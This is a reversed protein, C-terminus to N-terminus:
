PGNGSERASAPAFNRGRIYLPGFQSSQRLDVRGARALELTAAFTAAVASRYILGDELDGPLYNLLSQWDAMGGLMGNLRDLADATSHIQSPEITLVADTVRRRNQGYASLLDFLSVQFVLERM